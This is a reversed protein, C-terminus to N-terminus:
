DEFNIERYPDVLARGRGSLSEPHGDKEDSLV